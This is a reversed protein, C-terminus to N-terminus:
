VEESDANIDVENLGDMYRFYEDEYFSYKEHEKAFEDFLEMIETGDKKRYQDCFDVFIETSTLFNILQNNIHEDLAKDELEDDDLFYNLKVDFHRAIKRLRSLKINENDTKTLSGNGFGLCKELETMSIGEKVCLQRIKETINM